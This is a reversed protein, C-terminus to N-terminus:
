ANSRNKECHVRTTKQKSIRLLDKLIKDYFNFIYKIIPRKTDKHWMGLSFLLFSPTNNETCGMSTAHDSKQLEALLISYLNKDFFIIECKKTKFNTVQAHMLLYVFEIRLNFKRNSVNCRTKVYDKNIWSTRSIIWM